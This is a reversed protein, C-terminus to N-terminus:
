FVMNSILIFDALNDRNIIAEWRRIHLFNYAANTCWTCTHTHASNIKKKKECFLPWLLAYYIQSLFNTETTGLM